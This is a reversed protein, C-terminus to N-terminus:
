PTLPRHEVVSRRNENAIWYKRFQERQETITSETFTWFNTSIHNVDFPPHVDKRANILVPLGRGLAYGLEIFCNPREGTMDVVAVGSNHLNEFIQQAIDPGEAHSGDIVKFAYGFEEAVPQVVGTFFNEVDHYDKHDPNLLRVAFALPRRLATLLTMLAEVRREMPDRTAFTTRQLLDHAQQPPDVKFFRHTETSPIALDWLRLSGKDRATLVANLPIVPRGTEHYLDALYLVGEDGGLTILIDGHRSQIDMRKSNMDWRHASELRMLNAADKYYRWLELHEDPIQLENKHHQVAVVLPQGSRQGEQPRLHVNDKITQLILWDFLIHQGDARMPDADVPVVFTAGARILHGILTKLYMRVDEVLDAPAVDHSRSVSGAIHIRRNLLVPVPM